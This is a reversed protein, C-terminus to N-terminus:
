KIDLLTKYLPVYGVDEVLQQGQPSLFWDVFKQTEPTPNERTVMYADVIYPYTGNRINEETPAVGNIALLKIQKRMKLMNDNMRTVYYHFTYGVSSPANQYDAVETILGGMLDIVTSKKAPLMPTDQMVLGKMVTQSGSDEPRQWVKIREDSGGVKNWRSVKGSFIDKVQQESLSNVPNKIDVIFVFAERAFATYKLKVGAQEARKKQGESPQAVFIVTATGKILSDYAEATRTQQLGYEQWARSTRDADKPEPILQYYASAYLPYLATAGYVRPWRSWDESYRLEPQGQLSTLGHSEEERVSNYYGERDVCGALLATGLLLVGTFKNM